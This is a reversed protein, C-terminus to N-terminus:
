LFIVIVTGLDPDPASEYSVIRVFCLHGEDYGTLSGSSLLFSLQNFRM